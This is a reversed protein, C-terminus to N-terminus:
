RSPIERASISLGEVRDIQSGPKRLDDILDRDVGGRLRSENTRRDDLEEAAARDRIPEIEM